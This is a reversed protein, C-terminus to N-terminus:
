QTADMIRLESADSNGSDDDGCIDDLALREQEREVLNVEDTAFSKSPLISRCCAFILLVLLIIGFVYVAFFNNWATQQADFDVMEEKAPKDRKLAVEHAFSFYMLIYGILVCGFVKSLLCVLDHRLRQTRYFGSERGNEADESLKQYRFEADTTAQCCFRFVSVFYRM